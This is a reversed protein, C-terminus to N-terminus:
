QFTVAVGSTFNSTASGGVADRYWSQFSWTQGVQVAVSGAPQPMNTLDLQLAIFGSQGSSQIQGPGVYRGISGGLCLNGQSGGPNAVFGQTRSTLFYGFAQLPLSAATVRLNNASAISSGSALIVAPVGTSNVVAPTCYAAGLGSNELVFNDFRLDHNGFWAGANYPTDMAIGVFDVDQIVLNWLSDQDMIGVNPSNPLAAAFYGTPITPSASPIATQVTTWPSAGFQFNDGTSVWVWTDDNINTRTGNDSGLLLNLRTGFNSAGAVVERDFHFGTVGLARFNGRWPHVAAGPVITRVPFSGSGSAVTREICGGPNGGSALHTAAFIFDVGWLDTNGVSFDESAVQASALSLTLSASLFFTSLRQM